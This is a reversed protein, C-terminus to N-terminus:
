RKFPFCGETQMKEHLGSGAVRGIRKHSFGVDLDDVPHLAVARRPRIGKRWWSGFLSQLEQCFGDPGGFDEDTFHLIDVTKYRVRRSLAFSAPMGPWLLM